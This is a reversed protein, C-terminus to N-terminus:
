NESDDREIKTTLTEIIIDLEAESLKEFNLSMSSMKPITYSMFKELIALRDKPDLAKLDKEIQRRNKDLIMNLWERSIATARNLSGKPRGNPNGSQGKEFKKM